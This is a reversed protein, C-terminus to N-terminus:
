KFPFCFQCICCFDNLAGWKGFHTEVWYSPKGEREIEKSEKKESKYIECQNLYEEKLEKRRQALSGIPFKDRAIARVTRTRHKGKRGM